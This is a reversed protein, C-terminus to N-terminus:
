LDIKSKLQVKISQLIIPNYTSIAWLSNFIGFSTMSDTHIALCKPPLELTAAWKLVALITLAENFFVNFQKEANVVPDAIYAVGHMPSWFALSTASADGWIEFNADQAEWEEADFFRIGNLVEAQDAFWLLDLSIQKNLYVPANMYTHGAVKDYASNLGPKLLPFVNLAWNAHGLIHLWAQTPHWQPEPPHNVFDHIAQVLKSKFGNAMAISMNHLDMMFSIVELSEGFQQKHSEHPIGISDLLCLFKTQDIPMHCNYPEYVALEFSFTVNFADDVYHLMNDIRCIHNAAWCILGFFLCWLRGSAQNGFVACHDVHYEGDVLTAQRVQWRLHM